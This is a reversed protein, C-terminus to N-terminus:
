LFLVKYAQNEPYVIGLVELLLKKYRKSVEIGNIEDLYHNIDLLNKVVEVLSHNEELILLLIHCRIVYFESDSTSLQEKKLLDFFSRIQQKDRNVLFNDIEKKFRTIGLSYTKYRGGYLIECVWKIKVGLPMIFLARDLALDYNEDKIAKFIEGQITTYQDSFNEISKSQSIRKSFIQKINSM